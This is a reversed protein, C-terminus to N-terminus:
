SHTTSCSLISKCYRRPQAQHLIDERHPGLYAMAYTWCLRKGNTWNNPLPPDAESAHASWKTLSDAATALELLLSEHMRLSNVSQGAYGGNLLEADFTQLASLSVM